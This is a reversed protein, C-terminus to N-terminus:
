QNKLCKEEQNEPLCNIYTNVKKKCKFIVKKINITNKITTYNRHVQPGSAKVTEWLINKKSIPNIQFSKM